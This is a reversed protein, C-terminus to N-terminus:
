AHTVAHDAFILCSFSWPMPVVLANPVQFVDGAQTGFWSANQLIFLTEQHADPPSSSTCQTTVYSLVFVDVGCSVCVKETTWLLEWTASLSDDTIPSAAGIRKLEAVAADVATKTSPKNSLGRQTSDITALLDQLCVPPSTTSSSCRTVVMTHHGGRMCRPTTTNFFSSARGTHLPMM